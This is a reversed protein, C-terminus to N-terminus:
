YHRFCFNDKAIVGRKFKCATPEFKEGYEKIGMWGGYLDDLYRAYAAEDLYKNSGKDRFSIIKRPVDKGRIYVFGGNPVINKNEPREKIIAGRKYKSLCAQFHERKNLNEWFDSHIEKILFCDWDLYVIEDYGDEEMAYKLLDLKHWWIRKNLPSYIVPRKDVLVVDKFGLELLNNYNDEGMVYTVFPVTFKDNLRNLIVNGVKSRSKVFLNDKDVKFETKLNDNWNDPKVGWLARVFARKM